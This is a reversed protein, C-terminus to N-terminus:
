EACPDPAAWARKVYAPARPWWARRAAAAEDETPFPGRVAVLFGANLGPFWASPLVTLDAGNRSELRAVRADLRVADEEDDQAAILFWGDDGALRWLGRSALMALADAGSHAVWGDDATWVTQGPIARCAPGSGARDGHAVVWKDEFRDTLVVDPGDGGDVLRQPAPDMLVRESWGEPSASRVAVQAHVVEDGEHDTILVLRVPGDVGDLVAEDRFLPVSACDAVPTRAPPLRSRLAYRPTAGPRVGVTIAIARDYLTCGRTESRTLVFTHASWDPGAWTEAESLSLSGGGECLEGLAARLEPDTNPSALALGPILEPHSVPARAEEIRAEALMGAAALDDCVVPAAEAAWGLLIVM